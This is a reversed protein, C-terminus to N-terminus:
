IASKMSFDSIHELHRILRLSAEQIHRKLIERGEPYRGESIASFLARHDRLPEDSVSLGYGDLRRKLSIKEFVSELTRCLEFNGSFSALKLHFQQDVHLRERSAQEHFLSIYHDNIAGLQAIDEKRFGAACTTEYAFIELAERTGYLGKVDAADFEALFYGRRPRREAYGEQYLRELAERVPTRSVSLRDALEQHVLRNGPRLRGSLILEKLARYVYDNLDGKKIISPEEEITMTSM